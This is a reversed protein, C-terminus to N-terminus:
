VAELALKVLWYICGWCTGGLLLGVILCKRSPWMM